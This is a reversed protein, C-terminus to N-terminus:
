RSETGSPKSGFMSLPPPFHLANQAAPNLNNPLRIEASNKSRHSLNQLASSHPLSWGSSRSLSGARFFPFWLCLDLSLALSSSSHKVCKYLYPVCCDVCLKKPMVRSRWEEDLASRSSDVCGVYTRSVVVSVVAEERSKRSLGGGAM